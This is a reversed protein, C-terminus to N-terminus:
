KKSLQEITVFKYGKAKLAPVIRRIANATGRAKDTDHMLVIAGNLQSSKMVTNVTNQEGGGRWDATDITWYCNFEHVRGIRQNVADDKFGQGQPLRFSPVAYNQDGLADRIAQRGGLIQASPPYSVHNLTHNGISHGAARIAQLLKPYQKVQIGTVFFTAKVGTEALAALIAKTGQGTVKSDLPGDDITLAIEKKTPDGRTLRMAGLAKTEPADVSGVAEQGSAVTESSAPLPACLMMIISGLGLATSVKGLRGSSLMSVILRWFAEAGM